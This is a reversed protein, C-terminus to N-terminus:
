TTNDYYFVAYKFIAVIYLVCFRYTTDFFVTQYAYFGSSIYLNM